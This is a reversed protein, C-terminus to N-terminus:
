KKKWISPLDAYVLSSDKREIADLGDDKSFYKEILDWPKEAGGGIILRGNDPMIGSIGQLLDQWRHEPIIYLDIGVLIVVDATHSRDKVYDVMDKQVIEFPVSDVTADRSTRESATKGFHKEVGIYKKAKSYDAIKYGTAQVGCGLDLITKDKMLNSFYESIEKNKPYHHNSEITRQPEEALSLEPILEGTVLETLNKLYATKLAGVREDIQADFLNDKEASDSRINDPWEKM